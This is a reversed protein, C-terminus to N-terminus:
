SPTHCSDRAEVAFRATLSDIAADARVQTADFFLEKGWVLDAQQCQEVVAAFFCRFVELGYRTRIRTLSSHDPLLEDLNFGLYWRVSFRDVALRLLQRESRVGEFFMVLQLKADLNPTIGQIEAWIAELIDVDHRLARHLRKLDYETPNLEPLEFLLTQAKGNADLEDSISRPTADDEVDERKRARSAKEFTRSDLLKGGLLYDEYTKIYSLARRISIRFADVSSEFRKLYRSKFIGVLAEERGLEFEDRAVM